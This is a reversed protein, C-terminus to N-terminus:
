KFVHPLHRRCHANAVSCAALVLSACALFIYPLINQMDDDGALIGCLLVNSGM